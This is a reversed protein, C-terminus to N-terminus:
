VSQKGVTILGRIQKDDEECRIADSLFFSKEDNKSPGRKEWTNQGDPHITTDNTVQYFTRREAEERTAGGEEEGYTSFNASQVQPM